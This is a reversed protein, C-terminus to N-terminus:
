QKQQTPAKMKMMKRKERIMKTDAYMDEYSAKMVQDFTALKGGNGKIFKEADTKKEFAWKANILRLLLNGSVTRRYGADARVDTIPSVQHRVIAAAEQLGDLSPRAGILVDEARPCTFVTPAVSGWALVAREIVGEGSVRLMAALSAVSCALANRQGVKEFYHLQDAAPKNIWIASLIEGPELQAQGPGIIFDAIPMRRSGHKSLLEVEAGLVYLPPLTDGAPSATCINGGITGMNRIPPSGLGAVAQVLVPLDRQLGPHNLLRTHTTCAGIRITGAELYRIGKLTEIRDLCILATSNALGSRRKVLLDTGGAYLSAEPLNELARWLDALSRPSLVTTM